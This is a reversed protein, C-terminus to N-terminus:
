NFNQLDLFLNSEHNNLFSKKLKFIFSLLFNSFYNRIAAHTRDPFGQMLYDNNCPALSIRKPLKYCLKQYQASTHNRM